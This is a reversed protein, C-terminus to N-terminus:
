ADTIEKITVVFEHLVANALEQRPDDINVIKGFVYTKVWSDLLEAGKPTSFVEKVLESYNDM